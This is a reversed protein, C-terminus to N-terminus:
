RLSHGMAQTTLIFVFFVSFSFGAGGREGETEKKNIREDCSMAM